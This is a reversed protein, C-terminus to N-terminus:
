CIECNFAIEGIKVTEMVNGICISKLEGFKEVLNGVTGIRWVKKGGFNKVVRYNFVSCYVVVTILDIWLM